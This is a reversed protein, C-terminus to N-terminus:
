LNRSDINNKYTRIGTSKNLSKDNRSHLVAISILAVVDIKLNCNTLIKHKLIFNLYHFSTM